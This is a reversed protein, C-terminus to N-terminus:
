LRKHSVFLQIFICGFPLVGGMIIGPIPQTYITQEPIQRPIQNTRVPHELSRKRFGFYAGVFTLPVSVGFRSQTLLFVVSEYLIQRSWVFIFVYWLALIALLTSFPVAGSSEEYWLVLNMIFFLVFVIGPSFLATLIVNSKWKLGGFSKYIRASVYGAPTGLLVFLIMAMTMLAGRNAPSLFGQISILHTLNLFMFLRTTSHVKGPM